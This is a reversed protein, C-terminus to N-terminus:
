LQIKRSAFPPSGHSAARTSNTAVRKLISRADCSTPATRKSPNRYVPMMEDHRANDSKKDRTSFLPRDTAASAPSASFSQPTPCYEVRRGTIAAQAAVSNPSSRASHTILWRYVSIFASKFHAPTGNPTILFQRNSCSCRNTLHRVARKSGTTSPGAKRKRRSTITIRPNYVMFARPRLPILSSIYNQFLTVPM